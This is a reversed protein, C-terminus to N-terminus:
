DETKYQYNFQELVEVDNGNNRYSGVLRGLEDYEYYTTMGTADTISAVGILPKYTYSTVQAKPLKARLASIKGNWPSLDNAKAMDDITAKGGPIAAVVEEYTANEIRAVVYQHNYGYLLVMKEKDDKSVACKNGFGDYFYSLREIGANESPSYSIEQSTPRFVGPLIEEYPTSIGILKGNRIQETRILSYINANEMKAYVSKELCNEPYYYKIFLSDGTSSKENTSVCLLSNYSDNYGNTKIIAHELGSDDYTYSEHTKLTEARVESPVLRRDIMGYHEDRLAMHNDDVIPNFTEAAWVTGFDKSECYIYRDKNQLKYNGGANKYISKELLVGYKWSDHKDNLFLSKVDLRVPQKNVSYHYVTKGINNEKSGAYETVYEYM